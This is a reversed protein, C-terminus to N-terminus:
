NPDSSPQEPAEAKDSLKKINANITFVVIVFECWIRNIVIFIATILPALIVSLLGAGGDMLGVVIMVVCAGLALITSVAYYLTILKPTIMDDFSFFSSRTRSSLQM